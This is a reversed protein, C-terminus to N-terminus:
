GSFRMSILPVGIGTGMAVAGGALWARRLTRKELLSIFAALDLATYSALTAIVLSLLVLPLNYTGHM